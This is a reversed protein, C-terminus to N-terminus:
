DLKCMNCTAKLSNCMGLLKCSTYYACQLKCIETDVRQMCSAVINLLSLCKLLVIGRAANLQLFSGFLLQSSGFAAFDCGCADVKCMDTDFHQLAMRNALSLQFIGCVSHWTSFKTGTHQPYQALSLKPNRFAALM